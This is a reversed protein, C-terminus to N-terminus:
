PQTGFKAGSGGAREDARAAEVRVGDGGEQVDQGAGCPLPVVSTTAFYRRRRPPAGSTRLADGRCLPMAPRTESVTHCARLLGCPPSKVCTRLGEQGREPHETGGKEIAKGSKEVVKGTGEVVKAAGEGVHEKVTSEASKELKEGGKAIAAGTSEVARGTADVAKTGVEAAKDKVEGLKKGTAELAKTTKDELKKMTGTPAPGTTEASEDQACGVLAVAGAIGLSTLTKRWRSRISM